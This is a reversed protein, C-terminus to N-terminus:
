GTRAALYRDEARYDFPWFYSGDIGPPLRAGDADPAASALWDAEEAVTAAYDGAPKYGLDAAAAMDLLIPHPAEWPHRGLTPDAGDDLLVEDWTHGFHRAIARSIALASPADPDASNLIRRGPNAAAVEILAALNAAATPHDVGAGRHALFVAPRRDLVRKVFVWERPTPSGEGHIKSPRLVTVPWGSDLLLQEAAVKNAGYGEATQYDMDGPAMTPQTERIPGDFQPAIPSNTHHGAADVYVAKSSILVTSGAERVLPLLLAAEAATYCICDVLLDAGPGLAALLQGADHREAAVFEAGAAAIDAPLRGSDRGTLCVDWGAALLRRATARGVMGTGGVILARPM